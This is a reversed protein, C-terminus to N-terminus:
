TRVRLDDMEPEPRVRFCVFDFHAPRASPGAQHGVHVRILGYGYRFRGAVVARGYSYAVAVADVDARCNVWICSRAHELVITVSVPRARQCRNFSCIRGVPLQGKVTVAGKGIYMVAGICSFIQKSILSVVSIRIAANNGYCNRCGGATVPGGNEINDIVRINIFSLREGKGGM